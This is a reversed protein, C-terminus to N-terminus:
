AVATNGYSSGAGGGGDSFPLGMLMPEEDDTSHAEARKSKSARAALRQLLVTARACPDCAPCEKMHLTLSLESRCTLTCGPCEPQSPPM